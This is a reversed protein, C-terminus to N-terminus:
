TKEASAIQLRHRPLCQPRHSVVDFTAFEQFIRVPAATSISTSASTLRIRRTVAAVASLVAAPAAAVLNQIQHEGVGLAELGFEDALRGLEILQAMRQTQSPALGTHPDPVTDGFTYIGLEIPRHHKM